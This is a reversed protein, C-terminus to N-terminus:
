DTKRKRSDSLFGAVVLALGLIAGGGAGILQRDPQGKTAWLGFTGGLFLGALVLCVIEWGSLPRRPEGARLYGVPFGAPQFTPHVLWRNVPRDPLPDTRRILPERLNVFNGDGRDLGVVLWPVSGFGLGTVWRDEYRFTGAADLRPLSLVQATQGGIAVALLHGDPSAALHSLGPGPTELVEELRGLM